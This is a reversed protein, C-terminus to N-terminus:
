LSRKISLVVTDDSVEQGAFNVIDQNAGVYRLDFLFGHTTFTAGVNWTTYDSVAGTTTVFYGAADASQHGVAGSISLSDNVAYSANIEEYWANGGKAPFEPSFNVTAGLTLPTIPTITGAAKVEWYNFSGAPLDHADPYLYGIAGLDLSVPGVKPRWGGYVDFEMPVHIQSAGSSGFNLNSAWTGAYFQGDTLDFGGQVAASHQTQSLGRFEYDTTLAINGTITPGDAYAAGASGFFVAGALLAAGISSYVRTM